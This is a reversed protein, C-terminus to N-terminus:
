VDRRSFRGGGEARLGRVVGGRGVADSFVRFDIQLALDSVDVIEMDFRLDPKDSGYREMAESYTLKPFPREIEIGLTAQFAAAFTGEVVEQIDEEEIFSM